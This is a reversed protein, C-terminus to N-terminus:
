KLVGKMLFTFDSTEYLVFMYNDSLKFGRAYSNILSGRFRFEKSFRNGNWHFLYQPYDNIPTNAIYGNIAFNNLAAGGAYEIKDIQYQLFDFAKEFTGSKFIYVGDDKRNVIKNVKFAYLSKDLKYTVLAASPIDEYYFIKSWSTGDFKYIEHKPAENGSSSYHILEANFDSNEDNFFNRIRYSTDIKYYLCNSGDYRIIDGKSTGMWINGSNDSSICQMSYVPFYPLISDLRINLEKFVSGDWKYVAPHVKEGNYKTGGFYVMNDKNQFITEAFISQDPFFIRTYTGNHYQSIWSGHLVTYNGTDTVCVGLGNLSLTDIKWVYRSSDFGFDNIGEHSIFIDCSATFIVVWFLFISFFVAKLTKCVM